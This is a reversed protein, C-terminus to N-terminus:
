GSDMSHLDCHKGAKVADLQFKLNTLGPEHTASADDDSGESDISCGGEEGESDCDYASPSASTLNESESLSGFDVQEPEGDFITGSGLHPSHASPFDPLILESWDSEHEQNNYVGRPQETRGCRAPSWTNTFIFTVDPRRVKNAQCQRVVAVRAQTECHDKSEDVWM